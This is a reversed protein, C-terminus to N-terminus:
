EGILDESLRLIQEAYKKKRSSLIKKYIPYTLLAMGMGIVGIIVGPIMGNKVIETMIFSMGTGMILASIGGFVYGFVTAPRKVKADLRKLEDLKEPQKEVYGTRIKQAIFKTDQQNM